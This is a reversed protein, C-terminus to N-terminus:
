HVYKPQSKLMAHIADTIERSMETAVHTLVVHTCTVNLSFQKDNSHFFFIKRKYYIREYFSFLYKRLLTNIWDTKYLNSVKLM